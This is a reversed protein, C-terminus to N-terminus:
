ASISDSLQAKAIKICKKCFCVDVSHYNVIPGYLACIDLRGTTNSHELNPPYIFKLLCDLNLKYRDYKFEPIKEPISFKFIDRHKNAARPDASGHFGNKVLTLGYKARLCNEDEAKAEEPESKGMLKKWRTIPDELPVEEDTEENYKTDVKNILLLVLSDGSRLHDKVDPYFTDNRYKYYLNLIEENTLTKKKEHFIEFDNQDLIEM